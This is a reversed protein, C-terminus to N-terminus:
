DRIIDLKRSQFEPMFKKREGTEFQVTIVVEGSEASSEVIQGYGYDDHYLRVGKCWKKLLEGKVGGLDLCDDSSSFDSEGSIKRKYVLPVKGMVTFVDGAEYLFSSPMM